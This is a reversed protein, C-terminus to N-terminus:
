EEFVPQNKTQSWAEIKPTGAVGGTSIPIFTIRQAGYAIKVNEVLESDGDGAALTTSTFFVLKFEVKLFTRPVGAVTKRFYFALTDLHQGTTLFSFIQPSLKDVVKSVELEKLRCVGAGSGSSGTAISALNEASFALSKIPIATAAGGPSDDYDAETGAWVGTGPGFVAFIEIQAQVSATFLTALLCALALFSLGRPFRHTSHKM